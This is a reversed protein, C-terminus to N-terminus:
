PVLTVPGNRATLTMYPPTGELAGGTSFTGAELRIPVNSAGQVDQHDRIRQVAAAFGAAGAYPRGRTGYQESHGTSQDVLLPVPPHLRPDAIRDGDDDCNTAVFTFGDDVSDSWASDSEAFCLQASPYHRSVWRDGLDWCHSDVSTNVEVRTNASSIPNPDWEGRCDNLPQRNFYFDDFTSNKFVVVHKGRRLLEQLSPWRYQDVDRFEGFTYFVGAGLHSELISRLGTVWNAPFDSFGDSCDGSAEDHLQLDLFVLGDQLAQSGGLDALYSELTDEGVTDCSNHQVDYGGNDYWVDLELQFAGWDDVQEALTSGRVFANHIAHYQFRNLRQEGPRPTTEPVHQALAGGSLVLAAGLRTALIFHRRM